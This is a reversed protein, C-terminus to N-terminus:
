DSLGKFLTNFHMLALTFILFYVHLNKLLNLRVPFLGKM